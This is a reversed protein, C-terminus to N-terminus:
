NRRKRSHAAVGLVVRMRRQAVWRLAAEDWWRELFRRPVKESSELFRRPEV